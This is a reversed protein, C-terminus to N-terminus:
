LCLEFIEKVEKKGLPIYSKVKRTGNATTLEVFKDISSADINFDKLSSPM